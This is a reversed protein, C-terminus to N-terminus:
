AKFVRLSLGFTYQFIMQMVTSPSSELHKNKWFAHIQVLERRQLKGGDRDPKVRVVHLM